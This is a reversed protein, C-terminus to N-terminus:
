NRRGGAGGRRRAVPADDLGARLVATMPHDPNQLAYEALLRKLARRTNVEPPLGIAWDLFISRCEPAGIGEIRYSEAILRRPDAQELRM